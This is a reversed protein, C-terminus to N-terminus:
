KKFSGLLMCSIQNDDLHYCTNSNNMNIVEIQIIQISLDIVYSFFHTDNSQYKSVLLYSNNNNNDLHNFYM